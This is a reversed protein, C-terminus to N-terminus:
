MARSSVDHYKAAASLFPEGLPDPYKTILQAYTSWQEIVFTPPGLPNVNESFDIVTEPMSIGLQEYVHHANAGHNPLSM